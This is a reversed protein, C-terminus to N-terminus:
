DGYKSRIFDTFSQPNGDQRKALMDFAARIAINLPLKVVAATRLPWDFYRGAFHVLTSRGIVDMNGAEAIFNQVVPDDTHFRKPGTDFIHGAYDYSKALGGTREDREIM